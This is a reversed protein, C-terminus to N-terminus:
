RSSIGDILIQAIQEAGEEQFFHRANTVTTHPQGQTGPVVRLFPRDGGAAVPDEDSFCCIFPKDWQELM